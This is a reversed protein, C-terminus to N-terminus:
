FTFRVGIKIARPDLAAIINRFSTGTRLTFNTEPNANFLNYFDVMATMRMRDNVQFFKEVRLDVINVNQSRNNNINETFVPQTGSGPVDVRFIPAWPWGSQVRWNASAAIDYPFVYRGLFRFNWNTNDQINSATPYHNQWFAKIGADLPDATLPGTAESTARRREDRWQYDFSTQIFFNESFRRNFAFQVTDYNDRDFGSPYTDIENQQAGAASDPLRVMNLTNGNPDVPCPFVADGCPIPNALLPLVQGKNYDGWDNRMQKRVYSLRVSTDAAIEREMSLSFEDAFSKPLNPNVPTGAL